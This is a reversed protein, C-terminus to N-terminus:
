ASFCAPDSSLVSMSFVFLSIENPQAMIDAIVTGFVGYSLTGEGPWESADEEVTPALSKDSSLSM